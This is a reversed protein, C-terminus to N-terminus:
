NVFSVKPGFKYEKSQSKVLRKQCALKQVIERVKLALMGPQEEHYGSELVFRVIQTQSIGKPFDQIVKLVLNELRMPIGKRKMPFRAERPQAVLRTQNYWLIKPNVDLFDGFDQPVATLNAALLSSGKTM